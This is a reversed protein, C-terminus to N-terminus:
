ETCRDAWHIWKGAVVHSNRFAAPYLSTDNIRYLTQERRLTHTEANAFRCRCREYPFRQTNPIFVTLGIHYETLVREFFIVFM